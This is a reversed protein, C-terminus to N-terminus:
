KRGGSSASSVGPPSRGRPRRSGIVLRLGDGHHGTKRHGDTAPNSTDVSAAQCDDSRLAPLAHVERREGIQDGSQFNCLLGAKERPAQARWHRRVERDDIFDAIERDRAGAGLQEELEPAAAIFVRRGHQGDALRKLLPALDEPVLDHGGRQNIAQDVLTVDDVDPAVAEPEALVSVQRTAEVGGGLSRFSRLLSPSSLAAGVGQRM